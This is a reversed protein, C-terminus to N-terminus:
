RGTSGLARSGRATYHSFEAVEEVHYNITPSIVIQAIRDGHRIIRPLFSYVAVFLEGTYNWDICNPPILIGKLNNGSRGRISGEYGRPIAMAIGTSMLTPKFISWVLKTPGNYHLDLASGELKTEPLKATASLRRVKIM